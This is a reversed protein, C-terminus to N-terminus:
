KFAKLKEVFGAVESRKLEGIVSIGFEKRLADWQKPFEAPKVAIKADRFAARIVDLDEAIAPGDEQEVPAEPEPEPEPDAAPAVEVSTEPATEVPAPKDKKGAKPKVPTTEVPSTGATAIIQELLENNRAVSKNLDNIAQELSM